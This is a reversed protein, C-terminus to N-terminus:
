SAIRSRSRSRSSCCPCGTDGRSGRAEYAIFFQLILDLVFVCDLARNIVFWPDQWAASGNSSGLFSAEFPTMYALALTAVIDWRALFRTKGPVLVYRTRLLKRRSHVAIMEVQKAWVRVIEKGHRKDFEAKRRAREELKLQKQSLKRSLGKEPARVRPPPGVVRPVTSSEGVSTRVRHPQPARPSVPM